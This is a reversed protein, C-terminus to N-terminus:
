THSCEIANAKIWQVYDATLAQLFDVLQLLQEAIVNGAASQWLFRVSLPLVQM